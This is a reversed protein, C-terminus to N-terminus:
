HKGQPDRVKATAKLIQELCTMAILTCAVPVTAAVWSFPIGTLPLPRRHALTVFDLAVWGLWIVVILVVGERMAVIAPRWREPLKASVVDVSFMSAQRYAVSSALLCTWAFLLQTVELVWVNPVALFRTVTAWSVLGVVGALAIAAAWIEAERVLRYAQYM